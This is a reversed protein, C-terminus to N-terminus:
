VIIVLLVYDARLSAWLPTPEIFHSCYTKEMSIRANRESWLKCFLACVHCLWLIKDKKFSHGVLFLSIVRIDGPRLFKWVFASQLYNWCITAFACSRFLVHKLMPSACLAVNPVYIYLWLSRTQFKDFANICSYGSALPRAKLHLILCFFDRFNIIFHDM